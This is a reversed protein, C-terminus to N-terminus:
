AIAPRDKAKGEKAERDPKDGDQKEKEKEILMDGRLVRNGHKKVVPRSYIEPLAPM